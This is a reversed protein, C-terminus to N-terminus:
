EKRKILRYRLASRKNYLKKYELTTQKGDLKMQSLQEFYCKITKESEKLYHDYKQAKRGRGGTSIALNKIMRSRHDRREVIFIQACKEEEDTIRDAAVQM